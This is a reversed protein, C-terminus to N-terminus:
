WTIQSSACPRVTASFFAESVGNRQLSRVATFYPRLGFQRAFIRTDRATYAVKLGVPDPGGERKLGM